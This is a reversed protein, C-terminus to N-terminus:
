FLLYCSVFYLYTCNAFCFLIILVFCAWLLPHFQVVFLSLILLVRDVLLIVDVFGIVVVFM